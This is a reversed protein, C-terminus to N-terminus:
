RVTWSVPETTGDDYRYQVASLTAGKRVLFMLCTRAKDGRTFSTPMPRSECTAFGGRVDVPPLVTNASDLGWLEPTGGALDTRSRNQVRVHAYYPTATRVGKGLIFDRLDKITGREVRAVTLAVEGSRRGVTMGVVATDGPALEPPESPTPSATATPTASAGAPGGSEPESADDSCGALVLLATVWCCLRVFM